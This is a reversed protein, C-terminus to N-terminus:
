PRVATVYGVGIPAREPRLVEVDVFGAAVLAEVIEDEDPVDREEGEGGVSLSPLVYMCQMVSTFTANPDAYQETTLRVSDGLLLRGGSRLLRHAARLVGAPDPQHFASFLTMALDFTGPEAVSRVDATEFRANDAGRTAAEAAAVAIGDRAIDYGVVDCFTFTEAILNVARGSGCGLDVVRIGEHLAGLLGPISALVTDILREDYNVGTLESALTRMHSTRSPALGGGHHFCDGVRELNEALVPITQAFAAINRAGGDRSVLGAVSRPLEWEDTDDHHDVVGASAMGVLWARVYSRECGSTVALEATSVRARTAMTDLLGTQHGIALLLALAGGDLAALVRAQAVEARDDSDPILGHGGVTTM